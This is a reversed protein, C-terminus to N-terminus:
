KRPSASGPARSAYGPVKRGIHSMLVAFVGEVDLASTDVIVADAAPRLPALTRERDRDDRERIGAALEAFRRKEGRAELDKLRRLVRVDAGADLFFKYPADPFVETGMDRGEAVLSSRAGVARQADKMVKRVLSNEAIRSAWLGAQETRIEDGVPMGNCLLRSEGNEASLTFHLGALLECLKREDMDAEGRLELALRRFMAGTDLYPIGLANALKRALTSKGAGAPGDLTVICPFSPMVSGM